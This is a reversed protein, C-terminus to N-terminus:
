VGPRHFCEVGREAYLPAKGGSGRAANPRDQGQQEQHCGQGGPSLLGKEDAQGIGGKGKSLLLDEVIRRIKRDGIRHPIYGGPSAHTRIHDDPGIALQADIQLLPYVLIHPGVEIAVGGDPPQGAGVGVDIVPPHGVQHGKEPALTPHHGDGASRGVVLGAVDDAPLQAAPACVDADYHTPGGGVATTVENHVVNAAPLHRLIHQEAVGDDTM